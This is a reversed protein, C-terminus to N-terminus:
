ANSGGKNAYAELVCDLCLGTSNCGGENKVVIVRPCTWERNSYTGGDARRHEVMRDNQVHKCPQNDYGSVQEDYRVEWASEEWCGGLEHKTPEMGNM